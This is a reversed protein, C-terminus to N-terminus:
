LRTDISLIIITTRTRTQFLPELPTEIITAQDFIFSAHPLFYRDCGETIFEHMCYYRAKQWLLLLMMDFLVIADCDERFVQALSRKGAGSINALAASDTPAKVDSRVKKRRMECWQGNAHLRDMFVSGGESTCYARHLLLAFKRYRLGARLPSEKDNNTVNSEKAGCRQLVCKL